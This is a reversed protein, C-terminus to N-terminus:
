TIDNSRAFCFGNKEIIATVVVLAVMLGKTSLFNNLNAEVMHSTPNFKLTLELYDLFSLRVM